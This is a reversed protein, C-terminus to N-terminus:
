SKEPDLIPAQVAVLPVFVQLGSTTTVESQSKELDLISARVGVLTMFVKLGSAVIVEWQSKKLELIPARMGRYHGSSKFVVQPHSRRSARKLTWHLLGWM